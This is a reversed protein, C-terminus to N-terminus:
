MQNRPSCSNGGNRFTQNTIQSSGSMPEGSFLQVSRLTDVETSLVQDYSLLEQSSLGTPVFKLPLLSRRRSFRNIAKAALM